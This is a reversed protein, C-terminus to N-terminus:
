RLSINSFFDSLSAPLKKSLSNRDLDQITHTLQQDIEENFRCIEDLSNFIRKGYAAYEKELDVLENFHNVSCVANTFISLELCVFSFAGKLMCTSSILRPKKYFGIEVAVFM